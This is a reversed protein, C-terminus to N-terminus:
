GSAAGGEGRGQEREGRSERTRAGGGGNENTGAAVSGQRGSRRTRRWRWPGGHGRAGNIPASSSWTARILGRGEEADEARNRHGRGGAAGLGGRALTHRQPSSWGSRGREERRRDMAPTAAGSVDSRLAASSSATWTGTVTRDRAHAWRARRRMYLGYTSLGTWKARRLM